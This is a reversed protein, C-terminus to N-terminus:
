LYVSIREIMFDFHHHELDPWSPLTLHHLYVKESGTTKRMEYNELYRIMSCPQSVRRVDIKDARLRSCIRDVTVPDRNIKILNMWNIDYPINIAHSCLSAIGYRTILDNIMTVQNQKKQAVEGLRRLQSLGLAAQMATMRYNFGAIKFDYSGENRHMGHDRLLKSRKAFEINSTLILGGEGTTIIKNAFFSYCAFDGRINFDNENNPIGLAEAWDEIVFIQHKRLLELARQRLCYKGYNHVVITALLDNHENLIQELHVEDFCFSIPDIDCFIPELGAALVMNVPSIFTLSPCIVKTSSSDGVQKIVELAIHLATTCSSTAIGNLALGNGIEQVFQQEFDAVVNSQSSIQGAEVVEAVSRVDCSSISPQYNPIM